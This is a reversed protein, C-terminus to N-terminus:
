FDTFMFSVRRKIGNINREAINQFQILYGMGKTSQYYFYDGIHVEIDVVKKQESLERLDNILDSNFINNIGSGLLAGTIQSWLEIENLNYAGGTLRITPSSIDEILINGRADILSVINSNVNRTIARPKDEGFRSPKYDNINFETEYYDCFDQSSESFLNDNVFDIWGKFRVYAIPDLPNSLDVESIIFDGNIDENAPLNSLVALYVPFRGFVGDPLATQALAVRDKGVESSYRGNDIPLNGSSSKSDPFQFGHISYADTPYYVISDNGNQDQFVEQILTPDFKTVTAERPSCFPKPPDTEELCDCCGAFLYVFLIFLLYNKTKM